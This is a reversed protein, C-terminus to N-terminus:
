RVVACSLAAGRCCSAYACSRARLFRSRLALRAYLSATRRGRRSPRQLGQTTAADM